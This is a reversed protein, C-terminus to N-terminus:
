KKLGSASDDPVKPLTVLIGYVELDSQPIMHFLHCYFLALFVNDITYAM